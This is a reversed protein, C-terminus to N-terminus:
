TIMRETRIFEGLSEYTDGSQGDIHRDKKQKLIYIGSLDPLLWFTILL